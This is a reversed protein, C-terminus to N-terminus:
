DPGHGDVQSPVLRLPLVLQSRDSGEGDAEATGVAVTAAPTSGRSSRDGRGRGSRARSGLAVPVAVRDADLHVGGAAHVASRVVDAIRGRDGKPASRGRHRREIAAAEDPHTRALRDLFVARVTASGLHLVEHGVRAAGAEVAARVVADLQEEVDSLGPIVPSVLVDCPVGAAALTAVARLRRLPSPAGPETARWVADDLSGISVVLRAGAHRAADAIVDLDRVVLPSRTQVVFPNGADALTRLVGRTLRYRGEARQYPDTAHGVVIPGGRWGAPHLDRRLRTVVDSAVVIRRDFGAAAGLGLERHAARASCFGCAHACGRYPDVAWRPAGGVGGVPRLAAGGEVELFEMGRYEGRGM